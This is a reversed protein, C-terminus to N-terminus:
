DELGQKRLWRVALDAAANIAAMKAHDALKGGTDPHYRSALYRRAVGVLGVPAATTLHLETFAAEVDAPPRVVIEWVPPKKKAKRKKPEPEHWGWQRYIEEHARQQQMHQWHERWWRREWREHREIHTHLYGKTELLTLEEALSPWQKALTRLDKLGKLSIRYHRSLQIWTRNDGLVDGLVKRARKMEDPDGGPLITLSLREGDKPDPPLWRLKVAVDITEVDTVMM